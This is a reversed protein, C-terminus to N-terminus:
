SLRFDGRSGDVLEPDGQAVDFPSLSGEVSSLTSRLSEFTSRPHAGALM